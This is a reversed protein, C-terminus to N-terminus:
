AELLARLDDICGSAVAVYGPLSLLRDIGVRLRRNHAVASDRQERMMEASDRLQDIVDSGKIREQAVFHIEVCQVCYQPGAGTGCMSCCRTIRTKCDLDTKTIPIQQEGRVSICRLVGSFTGKPRKAYARVTVSTFRGHVHVWVRSGTVCFTQSNVLAAIEDAWEHVDDGTLSVVDRPAAAREHMSTVIAFLEEQVTGSDQTPSYCDDCTCGDGEIECSCVQCSPWDARQPRQCADRCDDQSPSGHVPVCQADDCDTPETLYVQCWGYGHRVWVEGTVTTPQSKCSCPMVRMIAGDDIYGHRLAGLCDECEVVVTAPQGALAEIRDALPPLYCQALEGVITQDAVSATGRYFANAIRNLETAHERLEAAIEKAEASPRPLRQWVICPM